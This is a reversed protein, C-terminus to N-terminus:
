RKLANFLYKPLNDPYYGHNDLDTRFCRVLELAPALEEQRGPRHLTLEIEDYAFQVKKKIAALKYYTGEEHIHKLILLGESIISLHDKLYIAADYMLSNAIECCTDCLELLQKEEWPEKLKFQPLFREIINYVRHATEDDIGRRSYEVVDLLLQFLEYALLPNTHRHYQSFDRLFESIEKWAGKLVVGQAEDLKLILQANKAAIVLDESTLQDIPYHFTDIERRNKKKEQLFSYIEVITEKPLYHIKNTITTLNWGETSFNEHKKRKLYPGTCNKAIFLIILEDYQQYMKNAQFKQVTQDFKLKRKKNSTVQIGIRKQVNAIDIIPHNPHHQNLNKFPSGYLKTLLEAFFNEADIAPDHHQLTGASEIEDAIDFLHKRIHPIYLEQVM